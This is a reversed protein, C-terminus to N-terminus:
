TPITTYYIKWFSSITGIWCTAYLWPILDEVYITIELIGGFAVDKYNDYRFSTVRLVLAIYWM